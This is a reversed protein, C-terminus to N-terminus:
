RTCGMHMTGRHRLRMGVVLRKQSACLVADPALRWAGRDALRARRAGRDAFRARRDIARRDALSEELKRTVWVLEGTSAV